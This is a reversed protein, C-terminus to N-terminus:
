LLRTVLSNIYGYLDLLSKDGCIVSNPYPEADVAIVKNDDNDAFYMPKRKICVDLPTSVYIFKIEPIISLIEIRQEKFPAAASVIVNLGKQSFEKALLAIRKTNEKRSKFDVGLEPWFKNRLVDADLRISKVNHSNLQDALYNGCTTKGSGSIGYFWVVFSM